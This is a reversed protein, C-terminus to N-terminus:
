EVIRLALPANLKAFHALVADYSGLERIRHEDLAIPSGAEGGSFEVTDEGDFFEGGAGFGIGADWSKRYPMKHEVLWPELEDFNTGSVEHAGLTLGDQSMVIDAAGVPEFWDVMLREAQCLDVLEGVLSRPLDGGITIQVSTRDGM